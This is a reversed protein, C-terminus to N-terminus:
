IVAIVEGHVMSFSANEDEIWRKWAVAYQELREITVGMEVAREAFVGQTCRAPWHGGYDRRGEPTDYIWVSQTATVRQMSIGADQVWQTLRRGADSTGGQGEHVKIIIQFCEDLLEYGLSFKGTRLDGERLCVVGGKRTVRTLEQIAKSHDHFHAVAQHTCVVDFSGDPFPLEHVDGKVFSINAVGQREAHVKASGLIAGSIDLGTVPGNPILKALEITISGSGCGVDLLKLSPNNEAKDQLTSMMYEYHCTARRLRSTNAANAM